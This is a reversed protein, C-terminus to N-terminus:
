LNSLHCVSEYLWPLSEAAVPNVLTLAALVYFAGLSKSDRNVGMSIMNTMVVLTHYKIYNLDNSLIINNMNSSFPDGTPSCINVKTDDSLQARYNWIDYLERLYRVYQRLNLTTFWSVDSYNGLQDIEIFVSVAQQRINADSYIDQVPEVFIKLTTTMSLCRQLQVIRKMRFNLNNPMENRTYPNLIARDKQSSNYLESLSCIDFGYIFGNENISIFQEISVDSIPELSFFDSDNTCVLRDFLASGKYKKWKKVIHGRFTKQIRFVSCTKLMFNYLRMTLATKTGTARIGYHKAMRKLQDLSYDYKELKSYDQITLISFADKSVKPKKLPIMDNVDNEVNMICQSGSRRRKNSNEYM